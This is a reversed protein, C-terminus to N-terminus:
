DARHKNTNDAYLNNKSDKTMTSATIIKEPQYKKAIEDAQSTWDEAYREDKNLFAVCMMKQRPFGRYNEWDLFRFYEDRQKLLYEKSLTKRLRQYEVLAKPKSGHWANKKKSKPDKPDSLMTWFEEFDLEISENFVMWKSTFAISIKDKLNGALIDKSILRAFLIEQEDATLGTKRHISTYSVDLGRSMKDYICDALVFESCNLGLDVRMAHNITTTGQVIPNKSQQKM